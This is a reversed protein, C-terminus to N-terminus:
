YWGGFMLYVLYYPHFNLALVILNIILVHWVPWQRKILGCLWVTATLVFPSAWLMLRFPVLMLIWLMIWQETANYLFLWMVFLLAWYIVCPIWARKITGLM